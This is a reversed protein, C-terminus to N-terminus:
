GRSGVAGTLEGRLRERAMEILEPPAVIRADTGFELVWDVFQEPDGVDYTVEVSGDKRQKSSLVNARGTSSDFALRQSFSVRAVVDEEGSPLPWEWRAEKALNFGRPLKFDPTRPSKKNVEVRSGIRDLKFCRTEGRLHCRGVMYWFGRRNFLGYPEVEREVPETADLARYSFTLLKRRTLGDIIPGLLERDRPVGVWHIHPVRSETMKERADFALKLLASHAPGSFPTGSGLFLRSVMTLAVREDPELDLHPLYYQDRPIIYGVDDEPGVPVAKIDIGMERLEEKDREFMRRLAAETGEQDLYVTKRLRGLTVPRRTDLLFATLKILREIRDM